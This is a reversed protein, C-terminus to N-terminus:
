KIVVKKGNHIFIGKAPHEVRVGQLTYYAAERPTSDKGSLERIGTLDGGLDDFYLSMKAFSAESDEKHDLLQGNFDMVKSPLQLYARGEPVTGEARFFSFYNDKETYKDPHEKYYKTNVFQNLAFNRATYVYKGENNMYCEGNEIVTGFLSAVLYNQFLDTYHLDSNESWWGEKDGTLLDRVKPDEDADTIIELETEENDNVDMNDCYLVVGENAPIFKLSRLELTGQMGKNDDPDQTTNKKFDHVVYAHMHEDKLKLNAQSCFTRIKTLGVKPNDVFEIRYTSTTVNFRVIYFGRKEEETSLYPNIAQNGNTYKTGGDVGRVMVTGATATADYEDFTAARAIYNFANYDKRADGTTGGSYLTGDSSKFSTDYFFGPVFSMYITNFARDTPRRVIKSYVISDVDQTIPNLFVQRVMKNNQAGSELKNTKYDKTYITGVVYFDQQKEDYTGLNFRNEYMRKYTDSLSTYIFLSVSHAAHAFSKENYTSNTQIEDGLNLMFMYSVGDGKTITFTNTSGSEPDAYATNGFYKLNSYDLKLEEIRSNGLSQDFNGYGSTNKAPRYQEDPYNINRIYVHYVDGKNGRLLDDKFGVTWLENVLGGSNRIRAKSLPLKMQFNGCTAVMEYEDAKDRAKSYAVTRNNVNEEDLTIAYTEGPTTTMEWKYTPTLTTSYWLSVPTDESLTVNASLGTQSPALVEYDKYDDGPAILFTIKTTGAPCTFRFTQTGDGNDTFKNLGNARCDTKSWKDGTTQALDGMIWYEYASAKQAVMMLMLTAMLSTFLRRM